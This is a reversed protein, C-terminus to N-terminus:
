GSCMDPPIGKGECQYPLGPRNRNALKTTAYDYGEQGDEKRVFPYAIFYPAIEWISISEKFQEVWKKATDPTLFGSEVIVAQSVRGPHRALYGVVLM